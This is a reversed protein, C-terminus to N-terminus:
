IIKVRKFISRKLTHIEIYNFDREFLSFIVLLDPSKILIAQILRSPGEYDYFFYASNQFVYVQIHLHVMDLTAPHCFSEPRRNSAGVILVM